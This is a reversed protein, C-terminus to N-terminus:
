FTPTSGLSGICTPKRAGPSVRSTCTSASTVTFESPPISVMGLWYAPFNETGTTWPSSSRTTTLFLFLGPPARPLLPRPSAPRELHNKGGRRPDRVRAPQRRKGSEASPLLNGKGRGRVAPLRASPGPDVPVGRPARRRLGDRLRRDRGRHGPWPE